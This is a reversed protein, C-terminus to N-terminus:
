FRFLYARITTYSKNCTTFIIHDPYLISVLVSLVRIYIDYRWCLRSLVLCRYEGPLLCLATSSGVLFYSAFWTPITGVYSALDVAELYEEHEVGFVVKLGSVFLPTGLRGMFSVCLM